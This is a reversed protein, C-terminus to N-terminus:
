RDRAPQRKFEESINRSSRERSSFLAQNPKLYLFENWRRIIDQEHPTLM